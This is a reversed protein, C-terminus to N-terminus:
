TELYQKNKNSITISVMTHIPKEYLIKSYSVVLSSEPYAWTFFNDWFGREGWLYRPATGFWGSCRGRWLINAELYRQSLSLYYHFLLSYITGFKYKPGTWKLSDFVIKTNHTHSFLYVDSRPKDDIIQSMLSELDVFPGKNICGYFLLLATM